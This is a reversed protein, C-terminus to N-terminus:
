LQYFLWMCFGAFILSDFRDLFGGQGPIWNSFDKIKNIRKVLSALLDGALAALAILTAALLIPVIPNKMWINATMAAVLSILFGGVFGEITKDPSIKTILKHKGILQGTVQCFADFTFVVLLLFLLQDQSANLSYIFFGISLLAYVLIVALNVILRDKNQILVRILEVWVGIMILAILAPFFHHIVAIISVGVIVLYIISKRLIPHNRTGSKRIILWIGIAGLGTFILYIIFVPHM